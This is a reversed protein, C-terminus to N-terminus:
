KEWNINARSGWVLKAIIRMVDKGFLKHSKLLAYTARKAHSLAFYLREVDAYSSDLVVNHASEATIVAVIRENYQLAELLFVCHACVGFERLLVYVTKPKHLGESLATFPTSIHVGLRM